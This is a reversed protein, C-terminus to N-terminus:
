LIMCNLQIWLMLVILAGISGYLSHYNGFNDVYFSFGWSTLISLVTALMAGPNFFPIPRRTSSGFRYITSFTTYFLLLVVAWRFGFLTLRTIFDAKIYRFVFDLITNGLIVFVVSGILVLGVLFTLQLATIRKQFANRKKFSKYNKEMGSMMSLMGNSAFWIALFFGFSLLGSRPKTAIEKITGFLMNGAEGPMVESINDRLLDQFAHPKGNVIVEMEYLPTYPLLTFLVIIGPFIALFFSFSMSNARTVIADEKLEQDIFIVLNFLPIRKLGPFSHTKSWEIVKLLLPHETFYTIFKQIYRTLPM